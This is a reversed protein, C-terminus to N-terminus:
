WDYFRQNPVHSSRVAAPSGTMSDRTPPMVYVLSGIMNLFDRTSSM